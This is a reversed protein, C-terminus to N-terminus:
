CGYLHISVFFSNLNSFLEVEVHKTQYVLMIFATEKNQFVSMAVVSSLMYFCQSTVTVVITVDVTKYLKSRM